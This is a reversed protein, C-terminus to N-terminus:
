ILWCIEEDAKYYQSNLLFWNKGIADEFWEITWIDEASWNFEKKIFLKLDRVPCKGGNERLFLVVCNEYVTKTKDTIFHLNTGSRMKKNTKNLLHRIWQPSKNLREGIQDLKFKPTQYGYYLRIILSEQENLRELLEKGLDKLSITSSVESESFAQSKDRQKDESSSHSKERIPSHNLYEYRECETILNELKLMIESMLIESNISLSILENKTFKTLDTITQLQNQIFVEWNRVSWEFEDLKIRSLIEFTYKSVNTSILPLYIDRGIKQIVKEIQRILINLKQTVELLSIKGLNRISLFIDTPILGVEALNKLGIRQFSKKVRVNFPSEDISIKKLELLTAVNTSIGLLPLKILSSYNSMNDNQNM